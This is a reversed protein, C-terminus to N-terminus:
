LCLCVGLNLNLNLDLFLPFMRVAFIPLVVSIKPPFVSKSVSNKVTQENWLSQLSWSIGLEKFIM